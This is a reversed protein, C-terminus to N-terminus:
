KTRITDSINEMANGVTKMAQGAKEKLIAQDKPKISMSLAAGAVMGVGLIPLVAKHNM